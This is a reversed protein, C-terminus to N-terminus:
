QRPRLVENLTPGTPASKGRRLRRARTGAEGRLNRVFRRATEAWVPLRIRKWAVSAAQTDAEAPRPSYRETVYQATITEIGAQVAPVAESVAAAREHPTLAEALRLGMWRAARELNLYALGVATPIIQGRWRLVRRGVAGLNEWGMVGLRVLVLILLALAALAGIAILVAQQLIRGALVLWVGLAASGTTGAGEDEPLPREPAPTPEAGTDNPLTTDGGANVPLPRDPRVLPPESATPEFEIWGYNPFFVEPWAHANRELVHYVGTVQDFQGQNFGAAFRAPIGLSRLLIVEASAYYTCYGQRSTFLLYDIPDVDSPPAEINLDYAINNRLWDTIATAQEYPTDAGAEAVIQRALAHTRESIGEPLQLYHGLVWEPYNAGADNLSQQDAITISAILEYGEGRRLISRSIVSNVDSGVNAPLLGFTVPRNIWRPQPAVYLRSSAGVFSTFSLRVDRRLLYPPLRLTSAPEFEKFETGETTWRGDTYTDHANSRWYFRAVPVTDVENRDVPDVEDAVLAIDMIPDDDLSSPGGLTLSDGYFDNVNQGQAKVSAFMRMWSERVTALPGSVQRWASAAAPSAALSPGAWGVIVGFLAAMLGARLFDFRMEPNYAVRAAQWERERALLSMRAVLLLSLLIYTALYLDLQVPGLYYYVNVLLGLGGPIVAPWAQSRRFVSWAALVSISWFIVAVVVPFPLADRNTGGHILKYLFNNLRWVLEVSRQQWTGRLIDPDLCIFFGVTFLGYVIAFLTAQIGGFRSKALALGAFLGVLATPWVTWLGDTWSAMGVGWTAVTLLAALLAVTIWGEELKPM